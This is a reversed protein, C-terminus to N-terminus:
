FQHITSPPHHITFFVSPAAKGGDVMWWGGDVVLFLHMMGRPTSHGDQWCRKWTGSLISPRPTLHGFHSRGKLARATERVVAIGAGALAVLM